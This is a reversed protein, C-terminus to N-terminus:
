VQLEYKAKGESVCSFVWMPWLSPLTEKCFYMCIHKDNPRGHWYDMDEREKTANKEPPWFGSFVCPRMLKVLRNQRRLSSHPSHAPAVRPLEPDVGHPSQCNLRKAFDFQSKQCTETMGEPYGAGLM